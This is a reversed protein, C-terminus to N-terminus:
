VLDCDLNYKRALYLTVRYKKVDIQLVCLM